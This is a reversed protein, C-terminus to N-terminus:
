LIIVDTYHRLMIATHMHLFNPTGNFSSGIHGILFASTLYRSPAHEAKDVHKTYLYAGKL